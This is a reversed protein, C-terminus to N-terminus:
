VFGPPTLVHSPLYPTPPPAPPGPPCGLLALPPRTGGRGRHDRGQRGRPPRPGKARFGRRPPPGRRYPCCLESGAPQFCPPAPPAIEEAPFPVGVAPLAVVMTREVTMVDMGM